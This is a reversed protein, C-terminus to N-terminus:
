TAREAMAAFVDELPTLGIVRYIPTYSKLEAHWTFGEPDDLRRLLVRMEDGGFPDRDIKDVVYEFSVAPSNASRLVDGVNVLQLTILEEDALPPRPKFM